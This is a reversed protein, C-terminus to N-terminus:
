YRGRYGSVRVDTGSPHRVRVDVRVVDAPGALDDLAAGADVDVTVRYASLAAVPAGSQDRAGADDLGRYDCVNDYLDRTSEAAPCPGALAGDQPDYYAHLLIEELYARAIADAQTEILPHASSRAAGVLAALVGAAVVAVILTSVVLEILTLGAGSECRTM